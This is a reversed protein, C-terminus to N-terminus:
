NGMLAQHGATFGVLSLILNENQNPAGAPVMTITAQKGARYIEIDQKTLGIRAVCGIKLCFVFPYVKAKNEGVRITLQATLLTELPTIVNAGAVVAGNSKIINLNFEAVPSGDANRMLQFLQCPDIPENTKVCKLTWDGFRGKDYYAEVIPQDEVIEGVSFDDATLKVAPTDATQAGAHTKAVCLLSAALFM